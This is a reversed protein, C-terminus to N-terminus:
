STVYVWFQILYGRHPAKNLSRNSFFDYSFLLPYLLLNATQNEFMLFNKIKSSFYLFSELLTKKIKRTGFIVEQFMLLKKFIKNGSTYSLEMQKPNGNGSTYSFSEKSLIYPIKRIRRKRSYLFNERPPSFLEM